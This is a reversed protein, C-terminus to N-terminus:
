DKDGQGWYCFPVDVRSPSGHVPWSQRPSGKEITTLYGSGGKDIVSGYTATALFNALLTSNGLRPDNFTFYCSSTLAAWLLIFLVVLQMM